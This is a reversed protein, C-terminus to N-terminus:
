PARSLGVERLIPGIVFGMFLGIGPHARRPATANPRACVRGRGVGHGSISQLVVYFSCM